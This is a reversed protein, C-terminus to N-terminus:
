CDEGDGLRALELIQIQYVAAPLLALAFKLFSARTRVSISSIYLFTAEVQLSSKEQGWVSM